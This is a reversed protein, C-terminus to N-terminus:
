LTALLTKSEKAEPSEPANKLLAQLTVKAADKRGDKIQAKALHLAIEGQKPQLSNAKELLQIGKKVDGQEVLMWGLTDAIAPSNPALTLAREAYSTAQKDKQEWLAWALNNLMIPDNPRQELLARYRQTARAFDKERLAIDADFLRVPIDNPHAKIWDQLFRDGDARKGGLNYASYTKVVLNPTPAEALVKTFVSVADGYQKRALKVDGELEALQPTKPAQMKVQELLTQAEDARNARILSVVMATQAELSNPAAKLAGGFTQLAAEAQDAMLQAQGLRIQYPVNAPNAAILKRYAAIAQDPAGTQMLLSAVMELYAPNGPSSAMAEQATALAQKVDGKTQYYSVLATAAAVSYPNTRRAEKLLGVVTEPSSGAVNELQAQALLGALNGPDKALLEKYRKRAAELNSDRVDLNALNAVAPFYTPQLDLAKELAKRAAPVDNRGMDISARVNWTVPNDPQRKELNKWAALAQDYQKRQVRALVLAIDPNPNSPSDKVASELEAFGANENGRAFKVAASQTRINADKPNLKSAQDFLRSAGNFDGKQLALEGALGVLMADGPTAALAPQLAEEAKMPQRQRLYLSALLKRAYVSKPMLKVASQLYQEAQQPQNLGVNIAGALMQAAGNNPMASLSLTIADNAKNYDNRRFAVLADLYNVGPHRPSMAKLQDVQKQAEDFRNDGILASTMSLRALFNRPNQKIATEYSVIADKTDGQARAIDGKLQLADGDNPAKGIVENVQATAAAFEGRAAKVRAEGLVAQPYDPVLKRATAFATLAEDAKGQSFKAIGLLSQLEAGAQPSKVNATTVKKVVEDVNGQLMDAKVLLPMVQDPDYRYELAKQLEISAEKASNGELLEKGLLFRAEGSQADAQLANKLEIIAAKRDNKSSLDKAKAIHDGAGPKGCAAVLLAAAVCACLRTRALRHPPQTMKM